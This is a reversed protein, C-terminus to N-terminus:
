TFERSKVVIPRTVAKNKLFVCESLRTLVSVKNLRHLIEEEKVFRGANPRGDTLFFIIDPRSSVNESKDRNRKEYVDKLAIELADYINTAGDARLGNVFGIASAVNSATASAAFTRRPLPVSADDDDDDDDEEEEEEEEEGQWVTVQDAFAVISFRDERSLDKLIRRMADKVEYLKHRQVM